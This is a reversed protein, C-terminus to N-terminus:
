KGLKARVRKVQQQVLKRAEPSIAYIVIAYVVMGEAVCIFVPVLRITFLPRLVEMLPWVCACMIVSACLPKAIASL